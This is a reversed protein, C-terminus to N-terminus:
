LSAPKGDTNLSIMQIPFWDLYANNLVIRDISTELIFQKIWLPPYENKLPPMPTIDVVLEFRSGNRPQYRNFIMLPM